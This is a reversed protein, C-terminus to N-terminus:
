KDPNNRFFLQDSGIRFFINNRFRMDLVLNKIENKNKHETVLM